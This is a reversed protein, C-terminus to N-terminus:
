KQGDSAGAPAPLTDPTSPVTEGAEENLLPDTPTTVANPDVPANPDAATTPPPDQGAAPSAAGPGAVTLVWIVAVAVALAPTLPTTASRRRTRRTPAM